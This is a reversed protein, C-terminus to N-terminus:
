YRVIEFCREFKGKFETEHDSPLQKYKHKNANWDRIFERNTRDQKETIKGAAFDKKSKQLYYERGLLLINKARKKESEKTGKPAAIEREFKVTTWEDFFASALRKINPPEFFKNVPIDQRRRVTEVRLINESALERKKNAMEFGKDYVKFYRKLTTSKETTKQRNKRFNADNYFELNDVADQGISISKILDIYQLPDNETVINLGIEYYTIRTRAPDIGIKDCLAFFTNRAQTMTFIGSNDLKGYYWLYYLKHLSCTIKAKNDKIRIDIGTFKYNEQSQYITTNGSKWSKLNNKKAFNEAEVETYIYIKLTLKDLM